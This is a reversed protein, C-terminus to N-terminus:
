LATMPSDSAFIARWQALSGLKSRRAQRVPRPKEFPLPFVDTDGHRAVNIIARQIAAQEILPIADEDSNTGSDRRSGAVV